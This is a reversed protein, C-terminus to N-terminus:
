NSSIGVTILDGPKLDAKTGHFYAQVFPSHITTSKIDM